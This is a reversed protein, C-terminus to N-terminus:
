LTKFTFGLSTYHSLVKPLAYLMNKSAKVSDHFVVISGNEANNIVYEFCEDPTTEADYDYSLVSWMILTFEKKLTQIQAPSIRGYPPRFLESDVLERCKNANEYYEKLPTKWGNLHNYTHNGVRHGRKKVEYFVNPYRNVNEGVCFFTAKAHYTDLIDLVQPTVDPHPGDDFTIYLVRENTNQVQWCLSPYFIKFFGPISVAKMTAFNCYLKFYFPM